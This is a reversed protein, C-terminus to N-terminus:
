IREKRALYLIKKELSTTEEQNELGKILSKMNHTVIHNRGICRSCSIPSKPMLKYTKEIDMLIDTRVQINGCDLCMIYNKNNM